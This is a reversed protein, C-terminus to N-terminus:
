KLFEKEFIEGMKEAIIENGEENLHVFDIYYPKQRGRLAQSLDYFHPVSKQNLRRIAYKFVRAM